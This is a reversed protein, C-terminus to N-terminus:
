AKKLYAKLEKRAEEMKQILVEDSQKFSQVTRRACQTCGLSARYSDLDCTLCNGLKIMMLSFALVDESTEPLQSLKDILKRWAVGPRANRIEPISRAPFLIESDPYMAPKPDPRSIM